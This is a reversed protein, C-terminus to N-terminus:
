ALMYWVVAEDRCVKTGSLVIGNSVFVRPGAHSRLLRSLVLVARTSGTRIGHM